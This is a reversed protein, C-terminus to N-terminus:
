ALLAENALKKLAQEIWAKLQFSPALLWSILLQFGGRM